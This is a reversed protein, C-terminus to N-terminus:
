LVLYVGCDNIIAIMGEPTSIIIVDGKKACDVHHQPPVPPANKLEEPSLTAVM